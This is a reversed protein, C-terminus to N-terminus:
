ALRVEVRGDGAHTTRVQLDRDRAVRRVASRLATVYQPDIRAAAVGDPDALCEDVVRGAIRALREVFPSPMSDGAPRRFPRDVGPWECLGDFTFRCRIQRGSDTRATRLADPRGCGPCPGAVSVPAPENSPPVLRPLNM